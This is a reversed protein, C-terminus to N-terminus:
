CAIRKVVMMNTIICIEVFGPIFSCLFFVWWFFVCDWTDILWYSLLICAFSHAAVSISAALPMFMSFGFLFGFIEVGLFALGLSLGIVLERDKGLYEETDYSYPLCAKVNTDRCNLAMILMVFHGIMTIFRAPILGTKDM